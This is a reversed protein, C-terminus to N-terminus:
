GNNEEGKLLEPNQFVDGIVSFHKGTSDEMHTVDAVWEGTILDCLCFAGEIFGIRYKSPEWHSCEVIYGEYIEKGNKDKLGTYQLFTFRDSKAEAFLAPMDIDGDNWTIFNAAIGIPNSMRKKENDWVKFNIERGM